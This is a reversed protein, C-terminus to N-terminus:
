FRQVQRPVIVLRKPAYYLRGDCVIEAVGLVKDYRLLLGRKEKDHDYEKFYVLTGTKIM